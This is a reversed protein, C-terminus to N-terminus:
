AGFRAAPLTHERPAAKDNVLPISPYFNEAKESVAKFTYNAIAFSIIETEFDLL